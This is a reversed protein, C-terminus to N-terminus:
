EWEQMFTTDYFQDFPIGNMDTLMNPLSPTKRMSQSRTKMWWAFYDMDFEDVSRMAYECDEWERLTLKGLYATNGNSSPIFMLTNIAKNCMIFDDHILEEIVM